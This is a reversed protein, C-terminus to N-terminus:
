ASVQSVSRVCRGFGPWTQGAAKHGRERAQDETAAYGHWKHSFATSIIKVEVMWLKDIGGAGHPTPTNQTMRVSEGLTSGTRKQM